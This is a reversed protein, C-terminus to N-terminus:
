MGFSHRRRVFAELDHELSRKSKREKRASLAHYQEFHLFCWGAVFFSSRQFTHIIRLDARSFGHTRTPKHQEM